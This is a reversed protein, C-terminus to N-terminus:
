LASSSGRNSLPADAAVGARIQMNFFEVWIIIIIPMWIIVICLLCVDCHDPSLYLLLPYHPPQCNADIPVQRHYIHVFDFLQLVNTYSFIQHQFSPTPSSNNISVNVFQCCCFLLHYWPYAKPLLLPYPHICLINTFNYLRHVLCSPPPNCYILLIICLLWLSYHCVHLTCYINATIRDSSMVDRLICWDAMPYACLLWGPTRM